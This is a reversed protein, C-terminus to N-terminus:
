MRSTFCVLRYNLPWGQQKTIWCIIKKVKNLIEYLWNSKYWFVTDSLRSSICQWLSSFFTLLWLFVFACCVAAM